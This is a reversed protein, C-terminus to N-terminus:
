RGPVSRELVLASAGDRYYRPRTGVEVFGAAAYFARAGENDARVELLVREAGADRALALLAALLARAVGRRRASATVVLRQLEAVDVVLSGAVYGLVEGDAEALLAHVTPLTGGVVESLLGYSWADEGLGAEELAAVAAADRSTARRVRTGGPSSPGAATM